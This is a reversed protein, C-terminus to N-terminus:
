VGNAVSVHTTMMIGGKGPGIIQDTSGALSRSDGSEEAFGIASHGLKCLQMTNADGGNRSVSSDHGSLQAFTPNNLKGSKLQSSLTSKNGESGGQAYRKTFSSSIGPLIGIVIIVTGEITTLVMIRKISNQVDTALLIIRTITVIIAVFAISYVGCIAARLRKETVKLLAPFPLICM